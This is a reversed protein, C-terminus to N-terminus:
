ISHEGHCDSCVPAQTSGQEVAKGHVSTKFESAVKDHCMACNDLTAVRFAQSTPREVDHAASHCVTCDPASKGARAAEGHVSGALQVSEGSHCTKCDPKAINAPHPYEEHKAHCTSCAVAEHAKKELKKSIDHCSACVENSAPAQAWLVSSSLMWSISLCLPLLPRIPWSEAKM